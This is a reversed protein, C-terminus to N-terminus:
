LVVEALSLFVEIAAILSLPLARWSTVALASKWSMATSLILAKKPSSLPLNQNTRQVLLDAELGGLHAVVAQNSPKSLLTTALNKTTPTTEAIKM